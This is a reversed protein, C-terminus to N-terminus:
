RPVKKLLALEGFSEGCGLLKVEIMNLKKNKASDSKNEVFIGVNGQLIIYFLEGIDGIQFITEGIQTEM